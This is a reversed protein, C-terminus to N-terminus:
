SSSSRWLTSRPRRRGQSACPCWSSCSSGAVWGSAPRPWSRSPRNGDIMWLGMGVIGVIHVPARYDPIAAPCWMRLQTPRSSPCTGNGSGHCPRPTSAPATRRSRPARARGTKQVLRHPDVFRRGPEVRVGQAQEAADLNEPFIAEDADLWNRGQHGAIDLLVGRTVFGKDANEIGGAIAKNQATVATSPRGNYMKGNWLYHCLSDLHTITLGHPSIGMFDHTIWEGETPAGEGTSSMYHLLPGPEVDPARETTLPRSCSVTIGERVLAGAQARKEPTILNLTGRQDDPGWRGWNSLSTMYGLVDDETPVQSTAM